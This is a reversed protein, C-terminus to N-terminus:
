RRICMFLTDMENEEALNKRGLYPLTATQMGFEPVSLRDQYGRAVSGFAVMTNSMSPGAHILEGKRIRLYRDKAYALLEKLCAPRYGLVNMMKIIENPMRYSQKMSGDKWEEMLERYSIVTAIQRDSVNQDIGLLINKVEPDTIGGYSLSVESHDLDAYYQNLLSEFYFEKLGFGDPSTRDLLHEGLPVRDGPIAELWFEGPRLERREILARTEDPLVILPKDENLTTRVSGRRDVRRWLAKGADGLLAGKSHSPPSPPRSTFPNALEPSM